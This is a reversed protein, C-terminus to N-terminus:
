VTYVSMMNGSLGSYIILGDFVKKDEVVKSM